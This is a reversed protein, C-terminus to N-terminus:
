EGGRLLDYIETRSLRVASALASLPGVAASIFLALLAEPVLEGLSPSVYPLGLEGGIMGSFPLVVALSLVVGAVAGLVGITLSECLIVSAVQRRDAGIMRLIAFERYRSNMMVTFLVISIIIGMAMITFEFVEVYGILSGMQLTIKSTVDSSLVVDVDTGSGVSRIRNTVQNTSYDPDIDVLVVSIESNADGGAPLGLESAYQMMHVATERVMFVSNDMGAGSEALKAVVEFEHDFLRIRSDDVEINSGVVLQDVGIGSSYSESIWPTVTFDTDPDYAILQVLFECCDADSVSTMYFQSSARAVGITSAIESELAAPMYFSSATGNVLISEQAYASGAPVVMIDAGLRERVNDEGAELSEVLISGTMLAFALVVIIASIGASRGLHGILNKYSLGVIGMM